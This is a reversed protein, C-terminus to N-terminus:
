PARITNEPLRPQDRRRPHHQRLAAWPAPQIRKKSRDYIYGGTIDGPLLDPTFQIRKFALGLATSFSKAILTKALGPYDELLVHGGALASAMIMELLDRKGIVAQQVEEIVYNALASVESLKMTM